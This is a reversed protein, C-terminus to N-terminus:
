SYFEDWEKAQERRYEDLASEIEEYSPGPDGRDFLGMLRVIRRGDPLITTRRALEAALAPDIAIDPERVEELIIRYRQHEKLGRTDVPKLVGHEYIAETITTM